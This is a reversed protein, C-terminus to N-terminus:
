TFTLYHGPTLFNHSIYASGDLREKFKVVVKAGHKAGGHSGKVV